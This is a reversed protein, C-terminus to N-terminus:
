IEKEDSKGCELCHPISSPSDVDHFAKAGRKFTTSWFTHGDIGALSDRGKLSELDDDNPFCSTSFTSATFRERTGM